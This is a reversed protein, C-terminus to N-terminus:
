AKWDYRSRKRGFCVGQKPNPFITECKSIHPILNKGFIHPLTPKPLTVIHEPIFLEESV